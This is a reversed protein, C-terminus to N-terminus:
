AVVPPLALPLLDHIICATLSWAGILSAGSAALLWRGPQRRPLPAGLLQAVRAETAGALAALWGPSAPDELMLLARALARPGRGAIAVQDAQLEARERRLGSWWGLVPLFFFGEALWWALLRRLPERRRVHELEHLLVADLEQPRLHGVVGRSIYISPRFLGGSFALAASSDLVRVQDAGIRQAAQRLQFPPQVLRQRRLSFSLRLMAWGGQGAAWLLGGALLLVIGSLLLSSHEKVLLSDQHCGVVSSCPAALACVLAAGALTFPMIQSARSL